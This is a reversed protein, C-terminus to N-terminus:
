VPKNGNLLPKETKILADWHVIFDLDILEMRGVFLM